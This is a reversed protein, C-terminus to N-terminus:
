KNKIQLNFNRPSVLYDRRLLLIIKPPPETALVNYIFFLKIIEVPKEVVESILYADLIILFFPFFFTMKKCQTPKYGGFFSFKKFRLFM